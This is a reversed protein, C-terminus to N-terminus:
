LERKSFSFAALALVVITYGLGYAAAIGVEGLPPTVDISSAGGLELLQFNPFLVALIGGALRAMVSSSREWADQALPQLHCIVLVVFASIVTFLNTRAYSAILLTFAALLAFKVGHLGTLVAMASYSVLGASPAADTAAVLERERWWLVACLTVGLVV